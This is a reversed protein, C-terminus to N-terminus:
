ASGGLSVLAGALREVSAAVKGPEGGFGIRLRDADGFFSGPVVHVRHRRALLGALRGADRAGAVAPFWICGHEPIRGSLLGDEVLPELAQCLVKRNRAVIDRSRNLYEDLHALVVASLSELYRSGNGEAMTFWHRIREIVPREAAVWGCKLHSLGYVKSLSSISVFRRGLAYACRPKGPAFDRYVEDVLIRARPSRGAVARAIARLERDGTFAGTPNHLNTLVVMATRRSVLKALQVPDIRYDPPGRDLWRVRAGIEAAAAWLPQYGPRECVVEDGKAVLARSALYIANTCGNTIWISAAPVKLRAALRSLLVPHGWDDNYRQLRLLESAHKRIHRGLLDLPECVNSSYLPFHGAKGHLRVDLDKFWTLYDLAM